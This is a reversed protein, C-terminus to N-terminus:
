SIDHAPETGLSARKPGTSPGGHLRCRGSIYLDRRKCLTGARTKAGCTLSRLEDPFPTSKSPQYPYDHEAWETHTAESKEWYQRWLKRLQDLHNTM